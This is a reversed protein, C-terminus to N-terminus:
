DILKKTKSIENSFLNQFKMDDKFTLSKTTLIRNEATPIKVTFFVAGVIVAVTFVFLLLFKIFSNRRAKNNKPKM